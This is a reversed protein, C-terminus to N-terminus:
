GDRGILRKAMCIAESRGAYKGFNDIKKYGNQRYFNVARHNVIRTELWITEYGLNQASQELHALIEAGIGRTGPRAYM